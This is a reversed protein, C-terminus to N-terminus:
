AILMVTNYIIDDSYGKKSLTLKRIKSSNINGVVSFGVKRIIVSVCTFVGVCVSSHYFFINKLEEPWPRFVNM